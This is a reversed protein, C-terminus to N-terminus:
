SDDLFSLVACVPCLLQLSAYQITEPPCGLPGGGPDARGRLALGQRALGLSFLHYVATEDVQM